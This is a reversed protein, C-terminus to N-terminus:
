KKVRRILERTIDVVKAPPKSVIAKAKVVCDYPGAQAAERIAQQLRQNAKRLLLQKRAESPKERKIQQVEPIMKVVRAFHFKAPKRCSEAMGYLVGDPKVWGGGSGLPQAGIPGLLIGATLCILTTPRRM